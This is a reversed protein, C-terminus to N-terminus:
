YPVEALKQKVNAVVEKVVDEPAGDSLMLEEYESEKVWALGLSSPWKEQM